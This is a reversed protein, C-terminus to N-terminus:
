LFFFTKESYLFSLFLIFFRPSFLLFLVVELFENLSIFINEVTHRQELICKRFPALRM